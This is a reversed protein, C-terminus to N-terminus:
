YILVSVCLFMIVTVCYHWCVFENDCYCWLVFSCQYLLKRIWYRHLLCVCVCLWIWLYVYGCECMCLCGCVFVCVCLCMWSQLQLIDCCRKRWKNTSAESLNGKFDSDCHWRGRQLNCFPLTSLKPPLCSIQAFLSRPNLECDLPLFLPIHTCRCKCQKRSFIQFKAPTISSRM